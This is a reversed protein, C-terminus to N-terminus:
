GMWSGGGGFGRGLEQEAAPAQPPVFAAFTLALADGYDPSAIGRKVMDAKAEIVLQESKNLHYGPGTLDTELINDAPIAGKLLWEKMRSWMYARMNAQHRDHSPAGFNVEMVNDFGMGRLREVYPAGFASDVFMMAVRHSPRKDSLIETLKAMMVSRDRTDEGSIRIAPVSVADLGRRFAIVNWAGSGGADRRAAGGDGGDSRAGAMSFMGGRGAVDFGAVLPDDPFSAPQRQQAQWVREQDIYQLEGARPAIGRVRVRVFDSDEGYDAIWEDLLAKNTFKATRSDIIKQKWRDRESGFVIRHFKGTNRTPNGWAFIMPEGDTLGGEAANWIEDPIASAEDFLYWSTSRAAHQGHFAESNERRCTQATVFWSEPAAKAVIKEQGVVFWHGTILMRTWKLIAPWTKTSLQAFTNSTITGQSNPRTSMIWNALWASTTSKGIGHGSSIAQRIPGVANLGDFGRKRVEEGIERLLEAQWRDPGAYDALPTRAEGWPYCAMVFGYADDRFQAVFEILEAEADIAPTM